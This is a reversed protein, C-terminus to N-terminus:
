LLPSGFPRNLIFSLSCWARAELGLVTIERLAGEEFHPMAAAASYHPQPTSSDQAGEFLRMDEEFQESPCSDAAAGGGDATWEHFLSTLTPSPSSLSMEYPEWSQQEQPQQEQLQQEQPQQEQLQQEQPQQEQLQQEQSQQLWHEYLYPSPSASQFALGHPVSLFVVSEACVLNM